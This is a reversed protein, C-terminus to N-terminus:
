DSRHNNLVILPRKENSVNARTLGRDPNRRQNEAVGFEPVIDIQRIPRRVLFPNVQSPRLELVASPVEFLGPRWQKVLDKSYSRASPATMRFYLSIGYAAIQSDLLYSSCSKILASM